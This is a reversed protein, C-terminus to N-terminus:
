GRAGGGLSSGCGSLSVTSLIRMDQSMERKYGKLKSMAAGEGVLLSSNHSFSILVRGQSDADPTYVSLPWYEM